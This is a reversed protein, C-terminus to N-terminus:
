MVDFDADWQAPPLQAVRIMETYLRLMEPRAKRALLEGAANGLSREVGSARGGELTAVNVGGSIVAECLKMAGAREGRLGYLLRPVAAEAELAAQMSALEPEGPE